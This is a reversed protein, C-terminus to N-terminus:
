FRAFLLTFSSSCQVRSRLYEKSRWFSSRLFHGPQPGLSSSTPLLCATGQFARFDLSVVFPQLEAPRLPRAQLRPGRCALLPFVHNPTPHPPAAFRVLLGSTLPKPPCIDGLYVSTNNGSELAATTHIRREWETWVGLLAWAILDALTGPRTLVTRRMPGCPSCSGSQELLCSM